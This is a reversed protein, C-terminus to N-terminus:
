VMIIENADYEHLLFEESSDAARSSIITAPFLRLNTEAHGARGFVHSM